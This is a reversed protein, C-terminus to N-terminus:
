ALSAALWHEATLAEGSADLFVSYHLVVAHCSSYIWYCLSMCGSTTFYLTPIYLAPNFLLQAYYKM